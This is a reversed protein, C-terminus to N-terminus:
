AASSVSVKIARWRLSTQNRIYMQIQEGTWNAFCTIEKDTLRYLLANCKQPDKIIELLNNYCSKYTRQKRWLRYLAFAIMGLPILKLWM